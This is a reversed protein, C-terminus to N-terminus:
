CTMGLSICDGFVIPVLVQLATTLCTTGSKLLKKKGGKNYSDPKEGRAQSHLLLNQLISTQLSRLCSVLHALEVKNYFLMKCTQFYMGDGKWGSSISITEESGRAIGMNWRHAWRGRILGSWLQMEKGQECSWEWPDKCWLLYAWIDLFHYFM